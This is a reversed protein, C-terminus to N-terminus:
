GGTEKKGQVKFSNRWKRAHCGSELEFQQPSVEVVKNGKTALVQM